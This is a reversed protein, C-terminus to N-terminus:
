HTSRPGTLPAQAGNRAGTPEIARRLLERHNATRSRGHIDAVRREAEQWAREAALRLSRLEAVHGDVALLELVEAHLLLSEPAPWLRLREKVHERAGELDGADLLMRAESDFCLALCRNRVRPDDVSEADVRARVLLARAEEVHTGAGDLAGAALFRAEAIGRLLRSRVAALPLEDGWGADLTAKRWAGALTIHDSRAAATVLGRIARPGLRRQCAAFSEDARAFDGLRLLVEGALLRGAIGAPGHGAGELQAVAEDLSGREFAVRGRWLRTWAASPLDEGDFLDLAQQLEDDARALVDDREHADHRLEAIRWHCQAVEFHLYADSPSIWLAHGWAELADDYQALAFHARGVERRGEFNLPERRVCDTAVALAREPQGCGRLARAYPAAVGLALLLDSRKRRAQRSILTGLTAQAERWQGARAHLRALAVEVQALTWRLQRRQVRDDATALERQLSARLRAVKAIAAGLRTTPEHDLEHVAHTRLTQEITRLRAIWAASAASDPGLQTHAEELAELTAASRARVATSAWPATAEGFTRALANVSDRADETAEKRLAHARDEDREEAAQRALARARCALYECNDVHIRAACRYDQAAREWNGQEERADGREFHGAAATVSGHGALRIAQKFIREAAWLDLRRSLAARAGALTRATQWFHARRVHVLALNHLAATANERARVVLATEKAGRARARQEARCLALWSRSVATRHDRMAPIFHNLRTRAMGRLDFVSPMGAWRVPRVALAQSCHEVVRRLEAAVSDGPTVAHRINVAEISSFRTVALAYHAEWRKPNKEIARLFALKAAERRAEELRGRLVPTSVESSQRGGAVETHALQTYIVGLNYFALDFSEDEAVAELLKAQAQKLFGTRDRPTRRSDGYLRLYDNFAGVAKWRVDGGLTLQAFMRCALECVMTDLFAKRQEASSPERGLDVRWTGPNGGGVLHATLTPGGGSETMHVSGILRPGRVLRNMVALLPGIPIRAPGVELRADSAVAGELVDSVDDASATLFAAAEKGRGFGGQREVGVATPISAEPDERYLERLRGLETVLLTSLGGVATADDQTYDVFSEVVVRKRARSLWRLVVLALFVLAVNGLSLWDKVSPAADVDRNPLEARLLDAGLGLLLPIAILLGTAVVLRGAFPAWGRQALAQLRGATRFGVRAPIRWLGSKILWVRAATPSAGKPATESLAVGM